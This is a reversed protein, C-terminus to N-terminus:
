VHTRTHIQTCIHAHTCTCETRCWVDQPIKTGRGPISGPGGCSALPARVRVVLSNGPFCWVPWVSLPLTWHGGGLFAPGAPAPRDPAKFPLAPLDRPSPGKDRALKEPARGKGLNRRPSPCLLGLASAQTPKSKGLHGRCGTRRCPWSPVCGRCAPPTGRM